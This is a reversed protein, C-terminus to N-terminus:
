RKKSTKQVTLLRLRRRFDICPDLFGVCTIVLICMWCTLPFLFLGYFVLVIWQPVHYEMILWQVFGMGCWFFLSGCLLLAGAVLFSLVLWQSGLYQLLVVVLLFLPVWGSAKLTVWEARFGGPHFLASQLARAALLVMTYLQFISSLFGVSVLFVLWSAKENGLVSAEKGLGFIKMWGEAQQLLVDALNQPLFFLGKWQAISFLSLFAVMMLHLTKNLSVWLRLFVALLLLPVILGYSGIVSQIFALVWTGGATIGALSLASFSGPAVGKSLLLFVVKVGQGLFVAACSLVLGKLAGQRLTVFVSLVLAAWYLGPLAYLLALVFIGQFVPGLIPEVIYRILLPSLRPMM